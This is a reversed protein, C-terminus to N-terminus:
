APFGSTQVRELSKTVLLAEIGPLSEIIAKGHKSGLVMLATAYADALMGSPALVSVSALEPPSFGRRPDIIHHHRLDASFSHQYDGSTALARDRVPVRTLVKDQRRPSLVGVGWREQHQNIGSAALDGGAEVLVNEFGQERLSNIGQGVIFGKAMGDLTLSMGKKGLQIKNETLRLQRYDVRDLSSQILDTPPLGRPTDQYEEFLDLLPKITIDFTGATRRSVDVAKRIVEVLAPDPNSLIGERNLRSLQSHPRYRSFIDELNEMRSFCAQVAAAAAARDPGVVTLNVVTGMLIRTERVEVPKQFAHLGLRTVAGAAGAAAVIKLFDKRSLNNNKKM